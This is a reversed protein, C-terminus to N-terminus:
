LKVFHYAIGVHRVEKSFASGKVINAVAKNDVNVLALLSSKPILESLLNKIFTTSAIASSLAIYGM